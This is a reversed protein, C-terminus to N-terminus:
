GNKTSSIGNNHFNAIHKPLNNCLRGCIKCIKRKQKCIQRKQKIDGGNHVNDKHFDDKNDIHKHGESKKHFENIHKEFTDFSQGCLYCAKQDSDNHFIEIHKQLKNCSKGCLNCSERKGKGEHVNNIHLKLGQSGSFAKECSCCKFGCSKSGTHNEMRHNIYQNNCLSCPFKGCKGQYNKSTSPQKESKNLDDIEKHVNKIHYNLSTIQGFTKSCLQCSFDKIGYHITKKHLGLIQKSKYSKGCINCDLRQDSSGSSNFKMQGNKSNPLNSM